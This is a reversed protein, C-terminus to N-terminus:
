GPLSNDLVVLEPLTECLSFDLSQHIVDEESYVLEPM